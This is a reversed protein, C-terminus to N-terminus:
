EGANALGFALGTLWGGFRRLTAKRLVHRGKACPRARRYLPKGGGASAGHVGTERGEGTRGGASALHPNESMEGFQGLIGAAGDRREAIEVAHVPAVAGHEVCAPLDRPATRQGRQGELGMRSAIEPRVIRREPQGRELALDVLQLRESEVQEEHQLEVLRHRRTRGLGEGAVHQGSAKADRMGDDAVIKAEAPAPGPQRVVQNREAPFAAEGDGDHGIHDGGSPM